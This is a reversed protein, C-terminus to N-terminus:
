AIARAQRARSTRAETRCLDRVRLAPLVEAARVDGRPAVSQAGTGARAGDQGHGGRFRAAVLLLMARARVARTRRDGQDRRARRDAEDRRARAAHQRPRAGPRSLRRPKGRHFLLGGQARRIRLRRQGAEDGHRARPDARHVAARARAERELNEEEARLDEAGVIRIIPRSRPLDLTHAPEHPEMEVTGVRMAARAISWCAIAAGCRSTAPSITSSIGPRSCASQSSERCSTAIEFPDTDGAMMAEAGGAGRAMWLKRGSTESEGHGRGRRGGSRRAWSRAILRSTLAPERTGDYRGSGRALPPVFEARAAELM